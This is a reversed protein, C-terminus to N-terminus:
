FILSSSAFATPMMHPINTLPQNWSLCIEHHCNTVIVIQSKYPVGSVSISFTLSLPVCQFISFLKVMKQKDIVKNLLILCLPRFFFKQKSYKLLVRNIMLFVSLTQFLILATFVHATEKIHYPATITFCVFFLRPLTYLFVLFTMVILLSSCQILSTSLNCIDLVSSPLFNVPHLIHTFLSFFLRLLYKLCWM